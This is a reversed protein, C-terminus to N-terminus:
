PDIKGSFRTGRAAFVRVRSEITQDELVQKIVKTAGSINNPSWIFTLLCILITFNIWNLHNQVALFM